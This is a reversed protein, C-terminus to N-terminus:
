EPSEKSERAYTMRVLEENEGDPVDVPQEFEEFGISEYFPILGRRCLLSLGSLDQLDPHDRVARMLREGYGAGRYESAVIVDYITGYYVFDTIVRAAAVLEGNTVVGVAVQSNELARRVSPEDRDAWWDYEEYLRTLSPADAPEVEQIEVM